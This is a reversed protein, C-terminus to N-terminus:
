LCEAVQALQVTGRLRAPQRGNLDEIFLAFCLLQLQEGRMHRRRRVIRLYRPHQQVFYPQFSRALETRAKQPQFQPLPEFQITEKLLGDIAFRGVHGPRAAKSAILRSHAGPLSSAMSSRQYGDVASSSRSSISSPLILSVRRYRQRSRM